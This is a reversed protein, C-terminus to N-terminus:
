AQHVVEEPNLWAASYLVEGDVVHLGPGVIVLGADQALVELALDVAPGHICRGETAQLLVQGALSRIHADGDM